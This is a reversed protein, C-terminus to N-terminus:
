QFKNHLLFTIIVIDAHMVCMGHFNLKIFYYTHSYCFWMGYDDFVYKSYHKLDHIYPEILVEGM